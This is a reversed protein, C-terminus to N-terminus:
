GDWGDRASPEGNLVRDFVVIGRTKYHVWGRTRWGTYWVESVWMAPYFLELSMGVEVQLGYLGPGRARSGVAHISM